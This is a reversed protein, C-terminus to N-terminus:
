NNWSLVITDPSTYVMSYEKALNALLRQLHFHTEEGMSDYNIKIFRINRQHMLKLFHNGDEENVAQLLEGEFRLYDTPDYGSYGNVIYCGHELSAIMSATRYRLNTAVDANKQSQTIPFELLVTPATHCAAEISTYASSSYAYVSGEQHIPLIELCYLLVAFYFWFLKSKLIGLSQSAFYTLGIIVLFSWRAVARIPEVLPLLKLVVAYPLLVATYRGNINLRPGLSFVFGVIILCIFFFDVQTLKRQKKYFYYFAFSILTLGPFVAMEGITHHNFSNLTSWITVSSVSHLLANFFYDSFHASYLVYEGYQRVIGYAKQTQIYYYLFPGAFILWAFFGPVLLSFFSFFEKRTPIRRKKWFYNLLEVSIWIGLIFLGFLGLYVGALFQIALFIGCFLSKRFTIVERNWPLFSLAILLPWYSVMQLHHVQSFFYPSFTTVFTSFLIQEKIKFIRKWFFYGALSNLLITLFFIANLTFISSHFLLTFPISLLSQPILLDSFLLTSKFPYFINGDFFHHLQVHLLKQSIQAITWVYFPYDFWDLLAKSPELFLSSYMAFSVLMVFIFFLIPLQWKKQFLMYSM